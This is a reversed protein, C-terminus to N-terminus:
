AAVGYGRGLRPSPDLSSGSGVRAAMERAQNYIHNGARPQQNPSAVRTRIRSTQPRAPGATRVSPVLDQGPWGAAVARTGAVPVYVRRRAARAREWRAYLRYHLSQSIDPTRRTTVRTRSRGFTRGISPDRRGPFVFLDLYVGLFRKPAISGTRTSCTVSRVARGGGTLKMHIKVYRCWPAHNRSGHRTPGSASTRHPRHPAPRTTLASGRSRWARM